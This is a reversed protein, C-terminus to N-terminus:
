RKLRLQMVFLLMIIIMMEMRILSRHEKQYKQQFQKIQFKNGLRQKEEEQAELYCYYQNLILCIAYIALLITYVQPKNWCYIILALLVWLLIRRFRKYFIKHM